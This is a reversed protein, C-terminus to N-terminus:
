PAAEEHKREGRGEEGKGEEEEAGGRRRAPANEEEKHQEEKAEVGLESKELSHEAPDEVGQGAEPPM